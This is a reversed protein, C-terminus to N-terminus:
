NSIQISQLTSKTKISDRKIETNSCYTIIFGLILSFPIFFILVAGAIFESKVSQKGKDYLNIDYGNYYVHSFNAIEDFVKTFNNYKITSLTETINPCNINAIKFKIDAYYTNTNNYITSNIYNANCIHYDVQDSM